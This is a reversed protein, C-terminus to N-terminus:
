TSPVRHWHKPGHMKLGQAFHMLSLLHILLVPPKTWHLRLFSALQQNNHSRLQHAILLRQSEISSWHGLRLQSQVCNTLGQFSILLMPPKTWHLRLFSALQQDNHSRLQHAIMLRQSEISSWHGLRLQSQVCHKLSQLRILLMLLKPLHMQFLRLISRILSKLSPLRSLLLRHYCCPWCGISWRWRHVIVLLRIDLLRM